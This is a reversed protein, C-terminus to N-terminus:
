NWLLGDPSDVGALPRFTWRAAPVPSSIPQTMWVPEMASLRASPRCSSTPAMELRHVYGPPSPSLNHRRKGEFEM